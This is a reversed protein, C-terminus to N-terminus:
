GAAHHALHDRRLVDRRTYGGGFQFALFAHHERLSELVGNQQRYQEAHQDPQLLIHQRPHNRMSSFAPPSRTKQLTKQGGINRGRTFAPPLAQSGYPPASANFEQRAYIRTAAVPM